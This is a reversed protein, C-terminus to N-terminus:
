SLSPFDLLVYFFCLESANTSVTRLRDLRCIPLRTTTNRNMNRLPHLEPLLPLTVVQLHSELWTMLKHPPCMMVQHHKLQLSIFINMSFMKLIDHTLSIMMLIDDFDMEIILLRIKQTICDNLYWCTFLALTYKTTQNQPQNIPSYNVVHWCFLMLRPRRLM